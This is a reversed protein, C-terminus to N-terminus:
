WHHPEISSHTATGHQSMRTPPYRHCNLFRTDRRAMALYCNACHQKDRDVMNSRM